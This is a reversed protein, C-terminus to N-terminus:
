GDQKESIGAFYTGPRKPTVALNKLVKIMKQTEVEKEDQTMHNYEKPDKFFGEEKPQAQTSQTPVTREDDKFTAGHLAAEFRM